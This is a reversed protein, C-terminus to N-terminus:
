ASFFAERFSELSQREAAETRKTAELAVPDIHREIADNVIQRLRWAPIADLEVSDGDFMKSRTDAMKTPRTPLSWAAIQERTVALREFHIEADPAYQRLRREINEAASVGSPDHDGLHYIFCPKEVQSLYAASQHLFTLSSFGRAVMLPVDWRETVEFVIGSVADKEVWFEVYCNQNNWLARRYYEAAESLVEDIGAYSDPKRMLRTSDTLFNFPLEGRERLLMLARQVIRYGAESKPVWGRVTAQYFAGRVTQPHDEVLLDLLDANLREVDSRTRRIRKITNTRYPFNASM